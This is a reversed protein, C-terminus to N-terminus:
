TKTNHTNHKRGNSISHWKTYKTGVADIELPVVGEWVTPVVEGGWVKPVVEGGWVTPVVEGGWITPVVVMVPLRVTLLLVCGVLLGGLPSAVVVDTMMTTATTITSTTMTTPTTM